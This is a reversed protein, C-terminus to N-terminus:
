RSRLTTYRYPWVNSQMHIGVVYWKGPGHWLRWRAIPQNLRMMPALLNPANVLHVDATAAPIPLVTDAFTSGLLLHITPLPYPCKAKYLRSRRIRSSAPHSPDQPTTGKSLPAISADSPLYGCCNATGLQWELCSLYISRWLLDIIRCTATYVTCM